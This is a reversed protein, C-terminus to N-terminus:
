FGSLSVLFASFVFMMAMFSTLRALQQEVGPRARYAAEVRGGVSGSLGEQKTTQIALLIILSVASVVFLGAFLHALWPFHLALPSKPAQQAYNDLAQQLQPSLSATATPVGTAAAQPASTALSGVTNIALILSPV